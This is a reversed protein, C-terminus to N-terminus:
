SSSWKQQETHLWHLQGADAPMEAEGNLKEILKLQAILENAFKRYSDRLLMVQERLQKIERAQSAIQDRFGHRERILHKIAEAAALAVNEADNDLLTQNQETPPASDSM